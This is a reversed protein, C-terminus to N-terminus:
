EDNTDRNLRMQSTFEQRVTEIRLPLRIYKGARWLDVQDAIYPSGLWGDQGGLLVIYNEDADKLRAIFRANAGYFTDQRKNEIRHATKMLSNSSGGVPYDGYRYRRGLLPMRGLLHSLKLRHMQGWDEYKSFDKTARPIAAVISQCVMASDGHLLDDILFENIHDNSLFAEALEEDYIKAYYDKIFYYSLLQFAVPGRSEAWYQGDWQKLTKLFLSKEQNKDNEFSMKEFKAWFLNKVNLASQVLVDQHLSKLFDLDVQSRNNLLTQMREVRNNTSFFFGLPTQAAVPANNASAIFGQSPDYIHPLQTPTLLGQWAHEPNEADLVLRDPREYDRVPIKVAPVLGIHGAVDAYVFNQGSVGYSEFARQYEQWNKAQNVKLFATIEDTPQHGVWKFALLTSDAANFLPADSIIPGIESERIEVEKDRWWRVSIKEKRTTLQGTKHASLRYIDTSASRMNTGSWAISDNRGVLMVPIGPFMLGVVHYSPCQYGAIMWLNPLQIGVHPDSALIACSDASRAPAIVLANSGFRAASSFVLGLDPAGPTASLTSGSGYKLFRQWLENWYPKDTLGLWQFWNMWNVDASVLRAIALIDQVTWPEVSFNLIKFEVPKETMNEQYFNLGKVFQQLWNLTEKPLSKEIEAVAAGLNLIRLSYDISRTFPGASESIRGSVARRVLTMQGLRLHAHVMGLLFACDADNKAEIFPILHSDWYITADAKLPLNSDPFNALRQQFTQKKPSTVTIALCSLFVCILLFFLFIKFLKM